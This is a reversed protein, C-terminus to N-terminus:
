ILLKKEHCGNGPFFGSPLFFPSFSGQHLFNGTRTVRRKTVNGAFYVSDEFKVEENINFVM